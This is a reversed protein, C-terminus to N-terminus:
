SHRSLLESLRGANSEHRIVGHCSRKFGHGRRKESGVGLIGFRKFEFTTRPDLM